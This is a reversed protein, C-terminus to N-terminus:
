SCQLDLQRTIFCKLSKITAYGFSHHFLDERFYFSIPFSSSFVPGRTLARHSPNDQSCISCLVVSRYETVTHCHVVQMLGTSCSIEKHFLSFVASGVSIIFENTSILHKCVVDTTLVMFVGVKNLICFTDASTVKFSYPM